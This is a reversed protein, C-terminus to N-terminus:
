APGVRVQPEPGKTNQGWVVEGSQNRHGRCVREGTLLVGGLGVETRARGGLASRRKWHFLDGRLGARDWIGKGAMCGLM